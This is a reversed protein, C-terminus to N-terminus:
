RNLITKEINTMCTYYLTYLVIYLISNKKILTHRNVCLNSHRLRQSYVFNNKINKHNTELSWCKSVAKSILAEFMLYPGPTVLSTPNSIFFIPHLFTKSKVSGFRTLRSGTLIAISLRVLAPTVKSTFLTVKACKEIILRM